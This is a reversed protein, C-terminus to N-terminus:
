HTIDLVAAAARSYLPNRQQETSLQSGYWALRPACSYSGGSSSSKTRQTASPVVGVSASETGIQGTPRREVQASSSPAPWAGIALEGCRCMKHHIGLSPEEESSSSRAQPERGLVCPVFPESLVIQKPPRRHQQRLDKKAHPNVGQSICNLPTPQPAIDRPTDEESSCSRSTPRPIPQPPLSLADATQGYLTELEAVLEIHQVAIDHTRQQLVAQLRECCAGKEDREHRMHSVTRRLFSTDECLLYHAVDAARLSSSSGHQSFQQCSKAVDAALEQLLAKLQKATRLLARQEKEAAEGETTCEAMYGLLRDRLTSHLNCEQVINAEIEKRSSADKAAYEEHVTEVQRETYALARTATALRKCAMSHEQQAKEVSHLLTLHMSRLRRLKEDGGLLDVTPVVVRRQETSSVGALDLTRRRAERAFSDDAIPPRSGGLSSM